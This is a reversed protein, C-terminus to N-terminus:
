THCGRHETDRSPSLRLTPKCCPWLSFQWPKNRVGIKVSQGKSPATTPHLNKESGAPVVMKPPDEILRSLGVHSNKKM